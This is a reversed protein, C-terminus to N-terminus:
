SLPSGLLSKPLPQAPLVTRTKPPGTSPADGRMLRLSNLVVVISSLSMGIAALWPPVWGLAALPMATLNYGAAWLLNQRIIGKARRALGIAAPFAQLSDGVLIVDASALTLASGRGMAISVGSGGLVPADNIGDGVMAVFEGQTTLQRVHALKDQPSQRAAFIRIGCHEAICRVASLADGSLIETQLGQDQLAAVATASDARPADGLEFRALEGTSNGLVIAGDDRQPGDQSPPRPAAGTFAPDAVFAATGIRYRRSDVTGEIGAGSVVQVDGAPPAAGLASRFAHAIPHESAAELAAAIALCGRQPLSGTVACGVLSVAGKTLTGTKDFIVRTVKALGEVADQNTVLVGRRALAANASAVAVLTALSFACPCAVVLVALTAAFARAPDVALWFVCVFAAGLLVRALFRSAMRDAARAIRPREAQARNLLAVINALVTAAGTATVRMQVPEAVNLTGAALADGLGREVPLPEGTLMSEDICTRGQTVEGDAPVVEGSRV